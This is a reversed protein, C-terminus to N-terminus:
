TSPTHPLVRHLRDGKFGIDLLGIERTGYKANCINHSTNFIPLNKGTGKKSINRHKLFPLEVRMSFLLFGLYSRAAISQFIVEDAPWSLFLTTKEPAEHTKGSFIRLSRRCEGPGNKSRGGGKTIGNWSQVSRRNRRRTLM